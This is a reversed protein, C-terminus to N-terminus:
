QDYNLRLTPFDGDEFNEVNRTEDNGNQDNNLDVFNSASMPPTNATIGTFDRQDPNQVVSSPGRGSSETIARVAMKVRPIRVNDIATLIADHM